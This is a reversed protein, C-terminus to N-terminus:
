RVAPLPPMIRCTGPAVRGTKRLGWFLPLVSGGVGWQSPVPHSLVQLPERLFLEWRLKLVVLFPRSFPLFLAM